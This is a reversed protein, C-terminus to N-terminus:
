TNELYIDFCRGSAGRVPARLCSSDMTHRKKVEGLTYVYETGKDEDYILYGLEDIYLCSILM